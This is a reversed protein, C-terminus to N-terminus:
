QLFLTATRMTFLVLIPAVIDCLRVCAINAFFDFLAFVVKCFVARILFNSLFARKEYFRYEKVSWLAKKQKGKKLM